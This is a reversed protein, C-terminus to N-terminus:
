QVILKKTLNITGDEIIIFYIGSVIHNIDINHKNTKSITNYVVNGGADIIKVRYDTTNYEITVKDVAPNPYLFVQNNNLDNIGTETIDIISIVFAKSYTLGAADETQIYIHYEPKTEYDLSTNTKLNNGDITFSGNDADNTGNGTALTYTHSDSADPDTSSLQGVISGLVSNENITSTTLAINTPSENINVVSITFAKLYTLGAADETRIYIYYEPKTEYDLSTNTKLNNGDITFSGNDADNTGNGTALTYTHSDSADPDTTSLQGVISGLTSNENITSTTLSINTPAENINVVSITFAKSYTLGAADETQMYIYYIPKTEYDLSTNTKLNNGDITFSANDADNTGNGSVFTYTFSDESDADTTSLQGVIYGVSVNENVSTNSLSINSPANNIGLTLTDSQLTLNPYTSNKVKFIYEGVNSSNFSTITFDPNTSWNNLLVGDKYIAYQNITSSLTENTINDCSITYNSGESVYVVPNIMELNAQPWYGVYSLTSFDLQTNEFDEFTFYNNYLYLYEINTIASLDPLANLKNKGLSLATLNTLNGITNPVAGTLKNDSLYLSTLNTLNGIEVPITGELENINFNLYVLNTLNGIESPIVGSVGNSYINLREIYVLGDIESPLIGTLNNTELALERVHGGEVTVGVWESVDEASLWNTNNNWNDGNTSNYFAVLADYEEQSVGNAGTSNIFLAKTTLTLSPFNSNYIECYFIGSETNAIALTNTTEGAMELGDKYWQYTNGAGDTTFSIIINGGSPTQTPEPLQAQPSYGYYPNNFDIHTNELDGFTLENYELRIQYLNTLASLDPCGTFKNNNLILSSLNTLSGLEAPISGNLQNNELHLNQLNTLGGLETPISGTLNNSTLYLGQLNTLDGLTAPIEGNLQMNNLWLNNLNTLNGLESPITGTLQNIGIDLNTLLILNGLQIPINGSLKNAWLELNLLNTLNGLETPISGTLQNQHVRLQQLNTLSGLEAPISGTLQNTYLYLYLLNTLSGLEAPISGTLQNSRLNLYQLNTLSGLEAPISGTLQNNFLVFYYLNALNGLEAPISGTLQNNYLYLYLLNTLSGLEAPISGTLNNNALIIETVHGAVTTVGYWEDVYKDTLWNTNNNWNDGNTSNYLAILANYEEEVIGHNLTM